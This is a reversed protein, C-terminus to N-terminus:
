LKSKTRMAENNSLKDHRNNTSHLAQHLLESHMYVLNNTKTFLIKNCLLM